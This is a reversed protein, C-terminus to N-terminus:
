SHCNQGTTLVTQSHTLVAEGCKHHPTPLDKSSFAVYYINRTNYGISRWPLEENISPYHYLVIASM